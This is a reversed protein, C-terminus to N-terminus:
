TSACILTQAPANATPPLATTRSRPTPFTDQGDSANDISHSWTYNVSSSLRHWDRFRLSAQLSHYSSSASLQFQNVYVLSPFAATGTAPNIQNIDVHGSCSAARHDWMALTHRAVEPSLEQQLNLNLVHIYPTRM